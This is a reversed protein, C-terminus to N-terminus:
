HRSLVPTVYTFGLWFPGCLFPFAERVEETKMKLQREAEEQATTRAELRERAERVASRARAGEEQLEAVQEHGGDAHRARWAEPVAGRCRQASVSSWNDSGAREGERWVQSSLRGVEAGMTDLKQGRATM